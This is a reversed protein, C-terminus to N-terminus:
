SFQLRGQGTDLGPKVAALAKTVSRVAAQYCDPDNLWDASTWKPQSRAYAGEQGGRVFAAAMLRAMNLIEPGGGFADEKTFSQELREVIETNLSVGRRKAGAELRARLPERMRTKLQVVATRHRAVM